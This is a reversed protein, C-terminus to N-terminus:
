VGKYYKNELSIAMIAQRIGNKDNNLWADYIVKYPVALLRAMEAFIKERVDSAYGENWYETLRDITDQGDNYDESALDYALDRFTLKRTLMLRGDVDKPYKAHYWARISKDFNNSM